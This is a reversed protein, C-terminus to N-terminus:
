FISSTVVPPHFIPGAIVGQTIVVRIVSMLPKVM